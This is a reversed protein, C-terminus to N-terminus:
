ISVRPRIGLALSWLKQTQKQCQIQTRGKVNLRAITPDQQIKDLSKKTISLVNYLSSLECEMQTTRIRVIDDNSVMYNIYQRLQKSSLNFHRAIEHGLVSGKKGYIWYAVKLYNPTPNSM